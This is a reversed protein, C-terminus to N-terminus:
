PLESGSARGSVRRALNGLFRDFDIPKTWYDVAGAVRAAEVDAAVASASLAIVPIGATSPDARLTELVAVGDMDPLQMDLLVLNPCLARVRELGRAGDEAIVLRTGPSRGLLEAVLMANVPNDEIYVILADRLATQDSPCAVAAPPPASSLLVDIAPPATPVSAVAAGRLPMRVEAVLGNGERSEIGLEGGLLSTLQRVLVLGIGNGPVESHERGLRNFPEFLHERQSSTMGLGDDRVIICVRQDSELRVGLWVHGGTRNYKIANSVLNLMVQRLRGPDAHMLVPRSGDFDRELTVGCQAAHPASMRMVNDLLGGLEFDQSQLSMRGSEIGAVDLMEDILQRLHLGAHVVLDVREQQSAALPQASDTQMLQAFGLVANLPTRLEHSMRSLFETKAKNAAEAAAREVQAREASRLQTLDRAMVTLLMRTGEGTRSISSEMPFTSGDARLGVLERKQGKHGSSGGGEGFRRVQEDHGARYEAPIFRDLTAGIAEAPSAGFLLSAAHNFVVIRHQADITIIADMATEVIGALRQEQERLVEEYRKRETIDININLICRRGEYDIVDANLLMERWEGGRNRVRAEWDRVQGDREILEVFTARDQPGLGMELEVINRGILAEAPLGTLRAFAQNVDVFVPHDLEFVAAPVPLDAFLKRFRAVGAQADRVAQARAAERDIHDLALSLNAVMREILDVLDPDFAGAESFYLNLAGVPVGGRRIPFAAVARVGFRAYRDLWAATHPSTSVENCVCARGDLMARLTPGPSPSVPSGDLRIDLGETYGEAGGAWAVPVIREDRSLGIWAMQAHGSAVAISCVKEFLHQPKEAEALVRGLDSLAHYFDALRRLRAETTRQDTIDVGLLALGETTRGQDDEYEFRAPHWRVLLLAGERRRLPADIPALPESASWFARFAARAKTAELPLLTEAWAMGVLDARDWGTRELLVRNAHRVKGDPGLIAALLEASEFLGIWHRPAVQPNETM